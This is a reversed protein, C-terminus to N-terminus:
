PHLFTRRIERAVPNAAWGDPARTLSKLVTLRAAKLDALSFGALLSAVGTPLEAPVPDGNPIVLLALALAAWTREAGTVLLLKTRLAHLTRRLEARFVGERATHGRSVLAAVAALTVGLDGDFLGDVRQRLLLARLGADNDSLSLGPPSSPRVAAPALPTLSSPAPAPLVSSKTPGDSPPSPARPPPSAPFTATASTVSALALNYPVPLKVPFSGEIVVDRLSPDVAVLTVQRNVLGFTAGLAELAPDDEPEFRYTLRRNRLLAWAISALDSRMEEKVALAVTLRLSEGDPRQGELVLRDGPELAGRWAFLVPKGAHLDLHAGPELMALPLRAGDRELSPRVTTWLPAHTADKLRALTPELDEIRTVPSYTGNGLAALEGLMGHHVSQGIGIVHLRSDYFMGKAARLANEAGAVDGDTMFVMVNLRYSDTPPPTETLYVPAEGFRGHLAASLAMASATGGRARVNSLFQDAAALMEDTFPVPAPAFVELQHDFALINFRDAADLARLSGKVARIAASMPDGMMSGSRDVLFTVTRPTTVSEESLAPPLLAVVSAPGLDDPGSRPDHRFWVAPTNGEPRDVVEVQLDRDLPADTVTLRTEHGEVRVTAAHTACRLKPPTARAHRVRVEVRARGALTLARPRYIPTKDSASDADDDAPTAFYTLPVILRHGDYAPTLTHVTVLTITVDQGREVPAVRLVALDEGESEGLTAERNSQIAQQYDAAARGRARVRGHLTRDGLTATLERLAAFPPLPFVLDGEVIRDLDNTFTVRLRSTALPGDVVVNGEVARVALFQGDAHDSLNVARASPPKPRPARTESEAAILRLHVGAIDIVDGPVVEAPRSIEMGNVFVGNSSQLDTVYWRGYAVQLRAHYRSVGPDPLVLDNSEHRGIRLDRKDFEVRETSGDPRTIVFAIM